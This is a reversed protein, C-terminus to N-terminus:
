YVVLGGTVNLAQGTMYSAAPSLLFVIVEACESAAASRGMPVTTLRQRYLEDPTTGRWVAMEYLLKEQMPTDIIGPCVANVRMGRAAHALAFSRTISLVAAKSAAYVVTELVGGTKASASSVNVISGDDPLHRAFAQCLFFLAKANVALVSDWDEESVADLSVPRVIGAANVLHHCEGAAKRLRDRDGPRSVDCAVTEAGADALLALGEADRDAAVVGAGHRLLARATALGIGSAAGTVIARRGALGDSDRTTVAPERWPQSWAASTVDASASPALTRGGKM